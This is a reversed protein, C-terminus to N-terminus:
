HFPTGPTAGTRKSKYGMGTHPVVPAHRFIRNRQKGHRQGHEKQSAMGGMGIGDIIGSEAGHAQIIDIRGFPQIDIHPIRSGSGFTLKIIQWPSDIASQVCFWSLPKKRQNGDGM